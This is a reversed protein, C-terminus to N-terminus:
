AYINGKMHRILFEYDFCVGLELSQVTCGGESKSDSLLRYQASKKCSLIYELSIM